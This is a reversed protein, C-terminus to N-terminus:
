VLCDSEEEERTGCGADRRSSSVRERSLGSQSSQVGCAISCTLLKELRRSADRGGWRERELEDWGGGGGGRVRLVLVPEEEDLGVADFSTVPDVLTPPATELNLVRPTAGTTM